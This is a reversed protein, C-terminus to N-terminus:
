ISVKTQLSPQLILCVRATRHIPSPRLPHRLMPTIRHYRRAAAEMLSLIRTPILIPIHILIPILLLRHIFFTPWRLQLRAWRPVRIASRPWTVARPARRSNSGSDQEEIASGFKSGRRQWSRERLWSRGPTFTRTSLGRSLESWSMWSIRLLRREAGESNESWLFVPNARAIRRQVTKAQLWGCDNSDTLM